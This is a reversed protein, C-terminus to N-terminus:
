PSDMPVLGGSHHRQENGKRKSRHVKKGVKRWWDAFSIEYGSPSLNGFGFAFPHYALDMRTQHVINNSRISFMLDFYAVGKTRFCLDMGAM